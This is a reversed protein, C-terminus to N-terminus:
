LAAREGVTAADGARGRALAPRGLLGDILEEWRRGIIEMDYERATELAAAGMRRRRAPDRVLALLADGFAEVDGNPVLIGNEGDRIIEAPGRPCDFSVVPVGKSMAELIVMGFGEFRSSLAFISAKALERGMFATPGMLLVHDHLGSRLIRKRLRAERGGEGFIRLTWDPEARAVPAFAPILLDFGKQWTLRGAALVLPNELSSRDGDLEPLANPIRAVRTRGGALLRGYDERDGHTLVALADLRPYARRLEAALGPKHAHFNMHEQGVTIVGRPAFDAAIVNFAPRTSLLVGGRLSRLRRVLQVDSWLTCFEFAHGEEHVLVSPRTELRRRLRSRPVGPRRDHLSTLRVGPPLPIFPADRLRVVSILEVDYSRALRGALNLVTRITGGVGFAHMLLIHVTPRPGPAPAPRLRVRAARALVRLAADRLRARGPAPAPPAPPPEPEREPEDDPPAPAPALAPRPRTPRSRVSLDNEVTWYPHFTRLADGSEARRWPYQLVAPKDPIDDRQAGIRLRRGGPETALFLDWTEPGGTRALAALDVEARFREGDVVTAVPREERTARQVCLLEAAVAGDPLPGAVTVARQEVRVRDVQARGSLDLVALGLNGRGTLLCRLQFAGGDREVVAPPPLPTDEDVRLGRWAPGDEGEIRMRLDWARARKGRPWPPALDLAGAFGGDPSAHLPARRETGSRRDRLVLNGEGALPRGASSSGEVTLGTAADLGVHRLV